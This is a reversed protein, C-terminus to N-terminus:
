NGGEISGAVVEYEKVVEGIEKRGRTHSPVIFTGVGWPKGFAPKDASFTIPHARVMHAATMGVPADAHDYEKRKAQSPAVIRLRKMQVFPPKGDHARRKQLKAPHAPDNVVVCNRVNLIALAFEIARRFHGIVATAEAETRGDAFLGPTPLYATWTSGDDRLYARYDAHCATAFTALWTIEGRLPDGLIRYMIQGFLWREPKPKGEAVIRDHLEGCALLYQTPDGLTPNPFEEDMDAMSFIEAGVVARMEPEEHLFEMWTRPYPPVFRADKAVKLFLTTPEPHEAYMRLVDTVEFAVLDRPFRDDMERMWDILMAM